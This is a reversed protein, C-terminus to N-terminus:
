KLKFLKWKFTISNFAFLKTKKTWIIQLTAVIIKKKTPLERLHIWNSSVQHVQCLCQKQNLSSRHCFHLVIYVHTSCVWCYVWVIKCRTTKTNKMQFTEQITYCCYMCDHVIVSVRLLSLLSCAVSKNRKKKQTNKQM